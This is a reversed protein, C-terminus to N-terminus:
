GGEWVVGCRLVEGDDLAGAKFRYRGQWAVELFVTHM